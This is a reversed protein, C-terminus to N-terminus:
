ASSREQAWRQQQLCSRPSPMFFHCFGAVSAFVDM